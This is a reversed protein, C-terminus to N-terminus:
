ILNGLTVRYILVNKEVSMIFNRLLYPIFLICL